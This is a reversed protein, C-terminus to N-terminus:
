GGDGFYKATTVPVAEARGNSNDAKSLLFFFTENLITFQHLLSSTLELNQLRTVSASGQNGTLLSCLRWFYWGHLVDQSNWFDNGRGMKNMEDRSGRWAERRRARGLSPIHDSAGLVIRLMVNRFAWDGFFVQANPCPCFVSWGSCIFSFELKKKASPCTMIGCLYTGEIWSLLWMVAEGFPM